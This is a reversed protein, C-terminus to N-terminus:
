AVRALRLRRWRLGLDACTGLALSLLIGVLAGLLPNGDVLAGALLGLGLMYVSWVAGGLVSIPLFRRHPFGSAGATLYVAVRGVPVFRGTLIVTAPRRDLHQRAGALAATMRPGRWWRFRTPGLTRGIVFALNDGAVAALAAVTGLAFLDPRATPALAALGMVLAESPVAPFVGDLVILLFTVPLLWWSDTAAVLATNVMEFFDSM